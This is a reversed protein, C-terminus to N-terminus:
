RELDPDGGAVNPQRHPRDAPGAPYTSEGATAPPRAPTAPRTARGCRSRTSAPPSAATPPRAPAPRSHRGTWSASSPWARRPTARLRLQRQRQRRDSGAQQHDDTDTTGGHRHDLHVAHPQEGPEFRRRGRGRVHPRTSWRPPRSRAPAPATPPATWARQFNVTAVTDSFAFVAQKVNSPNSPKANISPAPPRPAQLSWTYSTASSPNGVADRARVAFTHSGDALGPLHGPQRVDLLQRRRAPM